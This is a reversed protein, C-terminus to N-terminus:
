GEVMQPITFHTSTHRDMDGIDRDLLDASNPLDGYRSIGLGVPSRSEHYEMICHGDCSGSIVAASSAADRILNRIAAHLTM